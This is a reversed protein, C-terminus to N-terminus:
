ILLGLWIALLGIKVTGEYMKKLKDYRTAIGRFHKLRAFMNEIRHRNRYKTKHFGPNKRTSNSKTPIVPMSGLKFIEVRFDDSDYGKDGIIEDFVSALDDVMTTAHTIDSVNGATIEIAVPKGKRDCVAHIKTTRGGRSIGIAADTGKRCGTAHQHASVYSGDIYATRYDIKGEIAELLIDVVGSHVWRNYLRYIANWSGLEAPLDRWPSGTRIRWLIGEVSDRLHDTFYCGIELLSKQLMDWTKDTLLTRTM